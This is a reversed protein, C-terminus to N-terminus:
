GRAQETEYKGIATFIDMGVNRWDSSIADYDSQNSMRAKRESLPNSGMGFLYLISNIIVKM